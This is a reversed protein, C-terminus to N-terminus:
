VEADLACTGLTFYFAAGNEPSSEAWIRGSHRNIVRQVTALGVGSGPFEQETHLRQFAGFLKEAYAMDFGAGNDRVYYATENDMEKSGFVIRAQSTKSTFKWANNMINELAIKILHADGRAPPSPNIIVEVKRDPEREKLEHAISQVIDSLNVTTIKMESRSLRSLKLIDDILAGMRQSAARLRNLYDIGMDDLKDTYDEMVALSFGDIARLPARLDHSVSYAFAELERNSALLQETRQAVREELEANLRRMEAEVRKRESMDRIVTSIYELEEMGSQHCIIVQSVPIERNDKSILATDGEWVGNTLATKIGQTEVINYAWQPFIDALYTTDLDASPEMGVMKRGANNLYALKRDPTVMAVLDSTETLIAMLRERAKIEERLTNMTTRLQDTMNNFSAGLFGIEDNGSIQAKEDIHGMRIRDATASLALLPHVIKKVIVRFVIGTIIVVLCFLIANWRLQNDTMDIIAANESILRNTFHAVLADIANYLRQYDDMLQKEKDFTEEPKDLIDMYRVSYTAEADDSWYAHDKLLTTFHQRENETLGPFSLITHLAEVVIKRATRAKDIFNIDGYLYLYEFSSLQTEIASLAKKSELVAPLIVQGNLTLRRQTNAGLVHSVVVTALYGTFMIAICLIFRHSIKM